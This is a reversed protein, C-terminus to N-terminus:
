SRLSLVVVILEGTCCVCGRLSVLVSLGEGVLDRACVCVYCCAGAM